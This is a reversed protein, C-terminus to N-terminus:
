RPFTRRDNVGGRVSTAAALRQRAEANGRVWAEFFLLEWTNVDSVTSASLSHTEGDLRVAGAAGGLARIGAEVGDPPVNEDKGGYVALFPARVGRLGAHDQGFMWAETQLPWVGLTGGMFPVVGFGAKIRPDAAPRAGTAAPDFGGMASLITHAGGSAASAGIREPDIAQAFDPHRLIFDLVARFELARLALNAKFGPGRNDGHFIDVVIYGHAALVKLHELHWLGHTNYGGSYVILPYAASADAFIPREGAPQMHPLVNDGTERYPFRYDPRPNDPTTPYLVYLVLPIRRGAMWGFTKPDAPVDITLALASDPHALIDSLYVTRKSTAKGNLYDVMPVDPAPASVELNTSAVALPGASIPDIEVALLRSLAFCLPVVTWASKRILPFFM